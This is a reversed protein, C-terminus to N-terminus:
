LHPEGSVFLRNEDIPAALPVTEFLDAGSCAFIALGNASPDVTAVYARIKEADRELSEREPGSTAYTAVRDALEKRLFRDFDDRGHQNPQLNLYLSVVPYPGPEYAALRDLQSALQDLAM